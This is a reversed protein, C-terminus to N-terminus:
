EASNYDDTKALSCVCVRCLATTQEGARRRHDDRHGNGNVDDNEIHLNAVLANLNPTNAEHVDDDDDDDGHVSYMFAISLFNEALMKHIARLIVGSFESVGCEFRSVLWAM